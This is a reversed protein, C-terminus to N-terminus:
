SGDWTKLVRLSNWPIHNMDFYDWALGADTYVQGPNGDSQYEFSFTMRAGGKDGCYAGYVQLARAVAIEGATIGPIVTVDISPDLQVRTGEAIPTAVGAMNDGDTKSAPYRYAAPDAMDTAFFLAHPIQGAAIESARIVAAFRSIGSATSSGAGQELGNGHLNVEAGWSAGWNGSHVAQWIAFVKDTTPDAIAIQGDSGPPIPTGNPIPMTDSGFPDPGWAPDNVFAIDYRPTGSTIGTPGVLTVGYDHLGAIRVAGGSTSALSAAIAASNTDLVPNAPIPSWLWDASDFYNRSEITGGDVAGGMSLGGVTWGTYAAPPVALNFNDFIATGPNTENSWFGSTFYANLATITLATSKSRQVTWTLSDISTEWYIVGATERLRFFKYTGSNYAISTDSNVGSISERFILDSGAVVFRLANTGDIQLGFEVTISGSGVNANQVFECMAYSGTLDYTAVSNLTPYSAAPTLVLRGNTVVPSSAGYQGYGWWKTSSATAFNDTLTKTKAM